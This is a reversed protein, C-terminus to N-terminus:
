FKDIGYPSQTMEREKEILKWGLEERIQHPSPPPQDNSQRRDLWARISEKSPKNVNDMAAGM